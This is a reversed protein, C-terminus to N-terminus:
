SGGRDTGGGGADLDPSARRRGGFRNEEGRLLRGVNARHAWVVFTALALSFLMVASGGRHPTLAILVPLTIAAGISGLSVYGSPLTLACWVVFAGLAAWPALGVFVGASTAVGKGGRFGVWFSFVHGAIAAAGFALTWSVSAGALGAFVGVPLWGKAIDVAVVPVAAKWGLVRYVNTAGLNGSGERRLDVGHFARGVWYSTPTAGVVYSLALFAWIM